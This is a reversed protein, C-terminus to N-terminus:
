DRMYASNVKRGRTDIKIQEAVLTRPYQTPLYLPGTVTVELDNDQAHYLQMKTAADFGHSAINKPVYRDKQVRIPGILLFRALDGSSILYFDNPDSVIRGRVKMRLDNISVGTLSMAYYFPEYAFPYNPDWGMTAAGSPGDIHLNNIQRIGKLSSEIRPVCYNDCTFANWKITIEQVDGHLLVEYCLIFMMLLKGAKM